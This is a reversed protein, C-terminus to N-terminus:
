LRPACAAHVYCSLSCTVPFPLLQGTLRAEHFAARLAGPDQSACPLMPLESYQDLVEIPAPPPLTSPEPVQTVISTEGFELICRMGATPPEWDLVEQYVQVEWM